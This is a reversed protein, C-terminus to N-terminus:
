GVVFPESSRLFLGDASLDRTYGLSERGERFFAVRLSEQRRESTRETTPLLKRIAALLRERSVPKTVFADAGAESATAATPARGLVLIPIRALEREAKVQRCFALGADERGVTDILLLDPREARVQDLLTAGSDASLLRWGARQLFTSQLEEDLELAGVTLVTFM